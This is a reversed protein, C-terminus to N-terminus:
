KHHTPNKEVDVWRDKEWFLILFLRFLVVQSEGCGIQLLRSWQPATASLLDREAIGVNYLLEGLNQIARHDSDGHTKV